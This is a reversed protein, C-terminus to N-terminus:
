DFGVVVLSRHDNGKREDVRVLEFGMVSDLYDSVDNAPDDSSEALAVAKLAKARSLGLPLLAGILPIPIPIRVNVREVKQHKTERVFVRFWVFLVRRVFRTPSAPALARVSDVARNLEAVSRVPKVVEIVRAAVPAPLRDSSM